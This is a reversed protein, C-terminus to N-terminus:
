VFQGTFMWIVGTYLLIMGTSQLYYGPGVFWDWTEWFFKMDKMEKPFRMFGPHKESNHRYSFLMLILGM